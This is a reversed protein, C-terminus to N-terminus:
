ASNRVKSKINDITISVSEQPQLPATAHSIEKVCFLSELMIAKPANATGARSRTPQAIAVTVNSIKLTYGFQPKVDFFIQQPANKSIIGEREAARQQM